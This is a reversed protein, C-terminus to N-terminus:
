VIWRLKLMKKFNQISTVNAKQSEKVLFEYWVDNVNKYKKWKIVTFLLSKEIENLLNWHRDPSLEGVFSVKDERIIRGFHEVLKKFIFYKQGNKNKLIEFLEDEIEWIRYISCYNNKINTLVNLPLPTAM